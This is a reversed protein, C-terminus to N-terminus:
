SPRERHFFIAVEGLVSRMRQAPIAAGHGAPVTAAADVAQEAVGAHISVDREQEVGPAKWQQRLQIDESHAPECAVKRLDCILNSEQRPYQTHHLPEAHSM